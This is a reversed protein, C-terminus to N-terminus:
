KTDYKDSLAIKEDDIARLRYECTKHQGVGRCGDFVILYYGRFRWWNEHKLDQHKSVTNDVNDIETFYVEISTFTFEAFLWCRLQKGCDYPIDLRRLAENYFLWSAVTGDLYVDLYIIQGSNSAIFEALADSKLLVDGSFKAIRIRHEGTVCTLAVNGGVGNIAPSCAGLTTQEQAKAPAAVIAIALAACFAFRRM